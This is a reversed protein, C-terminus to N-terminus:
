ESVEIRGEELRDGLGEGGFIGGERRNEERKRWGKGDEEEGMRM